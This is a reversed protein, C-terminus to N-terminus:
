GGSLWQFESFRRSVGRFDKQLERLGKNEEKLEELAEHIRKFSWPISQFGKGM